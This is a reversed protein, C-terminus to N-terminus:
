LAGLLSGKDRKAQARAAHKARLLGRRLKAAAKELNINDGAAAGQQAAAAETLAM